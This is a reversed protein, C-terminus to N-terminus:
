RFIIIKYAWAFAVLALGIFCVLRIHRSTIPIVPWWGTMGLGISIVFAIACLVFAIAGAPQAVLADIPKGHAMLCFATTMGCFPCPVGFLTTTRCPTFGLQEHTGWGRPDPTLRAAILFVLLLGAAVTGLSIRERTCLRRWFRGWTFSVRWQEPCEWM